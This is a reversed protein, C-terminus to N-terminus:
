PGSSISFYHSGERISVSAQFSEFILPNALLNDSLDTVAFLGRGAADLVLSPGMELAQDCRADLCLAGSCLATITGLVLRYSDGESRAGTTACLLAGRERGKIGGTM